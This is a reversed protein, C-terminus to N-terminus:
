QGSNIFSHTTSVQCYRVHFLFLPAAEQCNWFPIFLENCFLCMVLSQGLFPFNTFIHHTWTCSSALTQFSPLLHHSPGYLLRIRNHIHSKLSYNKLKDLVKKLAPNEGLIYQYCWQLYRKISLYSAASWLLKNLNYLSLHLMWICGKVGELRFIPLFVM